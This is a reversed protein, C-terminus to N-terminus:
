RRIALVAAIAALPVLFGLPSEEEVTPAEDKSIISHVGNAKVTWTVAGGPGVEVMAPVFASATVEVNATMPGGAVVKVVGIASAHGNSYGHTRIESFTQSFTEGEMLDGSQWAPEGHDDDGHAAVAPIMILALLLRWMTAM